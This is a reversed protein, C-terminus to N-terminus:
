NTRYDRDPTEKRAEASFFRRLATHRRLDVFKLVQLGLTSFRVVIIYYM